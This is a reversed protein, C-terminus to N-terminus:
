PHQTGPQLERFEDVAPDGFTEWAPTEVDSPQTRSTASTSTKKPDNPIKQSFQDLLTSSSLSIRANHKHTSMSQSQDRQAKRTGSQRLTHKYM